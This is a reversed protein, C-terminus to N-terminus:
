YNYRGSFETFVKTTVCHVRTNQAQSGSLCLLAITMFLDIARPEVKSM